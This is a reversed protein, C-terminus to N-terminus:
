RLAAARTGAKSNRAAHLVVFNSVAFYVFLVCLAASGYLKFRDGPLAPHTFADRHKWVATIMACAVLAFFTGTVELWLVSSFKKVPALASKGAAKAANRIQSKGQQVSQHAQAVTRAADALDQRVDQRQSPPQAQPQSPTPASPSPATAADVAQAFTKAAHRAGYGLARGLRVKDMKIETYAPRPRHSVRPSERM